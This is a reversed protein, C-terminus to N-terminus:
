FLPNAQPEYTEVVTKFQPTSAWKEFSKVDDPTTCTPHKLDFRDPGPVNAQENSASSSQAPKNAISLEASACELVQRVVDTGPPFRDQHVPTSPPVQNTLDFVKEFFVGFLHKLDKVTAQVLALEKTPSDPPTLGQHSPSIRKLAMSHESSPMDPDSHAPAMDNSRASPIIQVIFFFYQIRLTLGQHSYSCLM